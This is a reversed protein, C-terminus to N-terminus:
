IISLRPGKGRSVLAMSLFTPIQTALVVTETSASPRSTTPLRVAQLFSSLIIRLPLALLHVPYSFHHIKSSLVSMVINMWVKVTTSPEFYFSIWPFYICSTSVGQRSGGSPIFVTDRFSWQDLNPSTLCSILLYTLSPYVSPHFSPLVKGKRPIFPKPLVEVQSIQPIEIFVFVAGTIAYNMVPWVSLLGPQCVWPFVVSAEPSCAATDNEGFMTVVSLVFVVTGKGSFLETFDLERQMMDADPADM